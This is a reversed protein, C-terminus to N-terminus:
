SSEALKEQYYQLMRPCLECNVVKRAVNRQMKGKSEM